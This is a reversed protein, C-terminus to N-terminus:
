LLPESGTTDWWSGSHGTAVLLHVVALLVLNVGLVIGVNGGYGFSGFVALVLLLASRGGGAHLLLLVLVSPTWLELLRNVDLSFVSGWGKLNVDKSWNDSSQPWVLYPGVCHQSCWEDHFENRAIHAVNNGVALVLSALTWYGLWQKFRDGVALGAFAPLQPLTVEKHTLPPWVLAVFALACLVFGFVIGVAGAFPFCAFLAVLLLALPYTWRKEGAWEDLKLWVLAGVFLGGYHEGLLKPQLSFTNRFLVNYDKFMDGGDNWFLYPGFCSHHCWRSHLVSSFFHALFVAWVVGATAFAVLSIQM